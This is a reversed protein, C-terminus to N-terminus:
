ASAAAATAGLAAGVQDVEVHAARHRLHHLGARAGRQDLSGSVATATARAARSPEPRGTVTLSRAAGLRAPDLAELSARRSTSSAPTAPTESGGASPRRAGCPCAPSRARPRSTSSSATGTITEPPMSPALCMRATSRAWRGGRGHHERAAREPVRPQERLHEAVRSPSGVRSSTRASHRSPTSRATSCRPGSRAAASGACTGGRTRRAGRRTRREAPRAACGVRDRRLAGHRGSRCGRRM